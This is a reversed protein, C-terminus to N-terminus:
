FVEQEVGIRLDELRQEHILAQALLLQQRERIGLAGRAFLEREEGRVDFPRKAVRDSFREDQIGGCRARNGRRLQAVERDGVEPAEVVAGGRADVEAAADLAQARLCDSGPAASFGLPPASARPTPHPAPLGAPPTTKQRRCSQRLWVSVARPLRQAPGWER